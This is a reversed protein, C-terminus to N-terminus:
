VSALKCGQIRTIQLARFMNYTLNMLGITAKARTKGISRIRSGGMSNEIFGFIHEVRARVKSKERNAAKQADTLPHGRYGKEHIRSEVQSSKIIEDQNAYASDAYLPKDADAPDLIQELVQSDHVSADTVEYKTILKSKTDAKIHDKYGYYTENNKKTWRADVDKQALKPKDEKWDEPTNGGKIEKNEDRSNRQKPVEVFSADVISGEQLILGASSLSGLFTEFLKEIVVANTLQEKFHWITKADPVKDSIKLGLFRMFSLRDLIQFETRDDSLNYYRQLILIKFMMVYDFPPRGGKGKGERKLVGELVPRFQEWRVREKLRVLPDNAEALKMLREEVDFLGIENVNKMSGIKFKEQEKKM